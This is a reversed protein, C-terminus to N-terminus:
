LIGFRPQCLTQNCIPVLPILSKWGDALTLYENDFEEIAKQCDLISGEVDTLANVM